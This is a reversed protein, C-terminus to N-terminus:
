PSHVTGIQPCKSGGLTFDVTVGTGTIHFMVLVKQKKSYPYCPCVFENRAAGRVSPKGLLSVEFYRLKGPHDAHCTMSDQSMESRSEICNVQNGPVDHLKM